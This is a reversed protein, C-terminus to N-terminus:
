RGRRAKRDDLMRFDEGAVPVFVCMERLRSYVRDGVRDALTQPTPMSLNQERVGTSRGPAYNTTALTTRMANYRRSILEDLVALEWDTNRGKGLEDIALVEVQVLPSLLASESRGREYGEKLDSLLHTFEVFRTPVGHRFILERVVSVLLHTKGRGVEGYLVLGKNLQGRTYGDVWAYAGQFGPMVGALRRQFTTFSSGAHRAPLGARNFLEVRDPLMQCRCRGAREVGDVVVVRLGTGHCLACPPRAALTAQAVLGEAQITYDDPGFPLPPNESM